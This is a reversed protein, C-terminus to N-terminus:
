KKVDLVERYTLPHDSVKELHYHKDKTYKQKKAKDLADQAERNLALKTADTLWGTGTTM